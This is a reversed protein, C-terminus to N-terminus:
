GGLGFGDLDWAWVGSGHECNVNVEFGVGMWVWTWRARQPFVLLPCVSGLGKGKGDGGEWGKVPSSQVPSASAGNRSDECRRCRACEEITNGAVALCAGRGRAAVVVLVLGPVAVIARGLGHAEWGSVSLQQRTREVGESGRSVSFGVRGGVQVAVSSAGDRARSM